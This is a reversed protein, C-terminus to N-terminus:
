QKILKKEVVQKGNVSLKMVYVGASIKNSYYISKIQKGATQLDCFLLAIEKGQLDFLSAKVIGGVVLTYKFNVRDISPNPYVFLDTITSEITKIGTSNTDSLILAATDVLDGNGYTGNNDVALGSAYFAVLGSSPATWLFMFTKSSPSGSGAATYIQVAEDRLGTNLIQSESSIGSVTGANLAGALTDNLVVCDFGFHNLTTSSVTINITYTQNPMYQNGVFSPSSTITTVTEGTGNFHCHSCNPSGPNGAFGAKGTSVKMVFAISGLATLVLLLLIFFNKKLIFTKM